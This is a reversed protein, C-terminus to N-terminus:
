YATVILALVSSGSRNVVKNILLAKPYTCMYHYGGGDATSRQGAPVDLPFSRGPAAAVARASHMRVETFHDLGEAVQSNALLECSVSDAVFLAPAEAFRSRAEDVPPTSDASFQAVFFPRCISIWGSGGCAPTLAVFRQETYHMAIQICSIDHHVEM